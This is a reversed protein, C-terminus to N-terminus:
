VILTSTLRVLQGPGISSRRASADGPTVTREPSMPASLLAPFWGFPFPIDLNREVASPRGPVDAVRWAAREERNMAALAAAVAVPSSLVAASSDDAM